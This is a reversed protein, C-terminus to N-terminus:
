AAMTASQMKMDAIPLSHGRNTMGSGPSSVTLHTEMDSRDCWPVFEINARQKPVGATTPSCVHRDNKPQQANRQDDNDREHHGM